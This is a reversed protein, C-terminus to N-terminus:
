PKHRSTLAACRSSRRWNNYAPVLTPWGFTLSQVFVEATLKSRRQVFGSSFGAQSAADTLLKQILHPLHSLNRM